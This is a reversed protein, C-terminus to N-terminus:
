WWFGQDYRGANVEFLSGCCLKAPTGNRSQTPLPSSMDMTPHRDLSVESAQERNDEVNFQETDTHKLPM